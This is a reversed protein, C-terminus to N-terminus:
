VNFFCICLISKNLLKDLYYELQARSKARNQKSSTLCIQGLCAQDQYFTENMKFEIQKGQLAMNRLETKMSKLKKDLSNAQDFADNIERESVLVDLRTFYNNWTQIFADTRRSLAQLSQILPQSPWSELCEQRYANIEQLLSEEIENIYKRASEATTNVELKLSDCHSDIYEHADFSKIDQLKNQIMEVQVKLSKAQESLPKEFNKQKLIRLLTKCDPLGIEPM